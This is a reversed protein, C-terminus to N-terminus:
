ERVKDKKSVNKLNKREINQQKQVENNSETLLTDCM